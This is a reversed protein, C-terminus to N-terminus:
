KRISKIVETDLLPEGDVGVLVSILVLVFIILLIKIAIDKM